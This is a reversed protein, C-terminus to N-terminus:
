RALIDPGLLGGHFPPGKLAPQWATLSEALALCRLTRGATAAAADARLTM